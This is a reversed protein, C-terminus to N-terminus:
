AATRELDLKRAPAGDSAAANMWLAERRPRAGDALAAKEVVRWHRLRDAYIENHYGSLVVAGELRDLVDLLAVHGAEDMEHDYAGHRRRTSPLYPPDVYHLTAPSDHQRLVDVAPRNEIVVGALREVITALAPPYSAWDHAPTTHSRNSNSRFGTQSPRNMGATSFGMFSRVIMRRSREVPDVSPQYAGEFEARAYPTLRVAEILEQARDSRLVRFLTVVEDSLDNYVESYARPKRLLVSAAGGFVETYVRHEAFHSIIWPALRWKGGHYRLLPRRLTM